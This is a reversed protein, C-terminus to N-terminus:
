MEGIGYLLVSFAFSIISLCAIPVAIVKKRRFEIIATILGLTSLMLWIPTFIKDAVHLPIAAYFGAFFLLWNLLLLSGLVYTWKYPLGASDNKTRMRYTIIVGLLIIFLFFVLLIFTIGLVDVGSM